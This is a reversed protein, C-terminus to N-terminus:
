VFTFHRESFEALILDYTDLGHCFSITDFTSCFSLNFACSSYSEFIAPRGCFTSAWGTTSVHESNALNLFMIVNKEFYNM